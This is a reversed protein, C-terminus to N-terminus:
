AKKPISPPVKEDVKKKEPIGKGAYLRFTKDPYNKNVTQIAHDFDNAKFTEIIDQNKSSPILVTFNKV